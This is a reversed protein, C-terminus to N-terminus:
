QCQSYEVGDAVIIPFGNNNRKVVTRVHEMQAGESMYLEGQQVAWRGGNGSDRQGYVSGARGSSGGEGRSGSSWMGNPSFTVRTSSSYGSVKNYKFTCWPSSLLLEPTVAAYSPAPIGLGLCLVSAAFRAKM